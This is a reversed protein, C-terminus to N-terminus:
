AEKNSRKWRYKYQGCDYIRFLGRELTIEHETKGEDGPRAIKHRQFQMRNRRIAGDVIYYGPSSTSEYEFGLKIYFAEKESWRADAFTIMENVEPHADIFHRFLRGAGGVVSVGVRNCFRHLEVGDGFRNHGFTM